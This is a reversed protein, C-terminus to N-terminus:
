SFLVSVTVEKLARSSSNMRLTAQAFSVRGGLGGLSSLNQSSTPHSSGSLFKGYFFGFVFLVCFAFGEQNPEFIVGIAGEASSVFRKETAEAFEESERPSHSDIGYHDGM